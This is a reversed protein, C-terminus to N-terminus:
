CASGATGRRGQGERGLAGDRDMDGLGHRRMWDNLPANAPGTDFAVMRTATGGRSTASAASISFPPNADSGLRRLLAVHYSAALPAGQGGAKMDASRFDYAVTTGVLRAMLEGDGLQRTQGLRGAHPRGTFCPRAM